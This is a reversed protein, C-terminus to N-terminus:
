VELLEGEWGHSTYSVSLGFRCDLFFVHVFDLCSFRVGKGGGDRVGIAPGWAGWWSFGARSIFVSM